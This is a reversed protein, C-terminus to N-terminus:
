VSGYLESHATNCTHQKQGVGGRDIIVVTSIYCYNGPQSTIVNDNKVTASKANSKLVTNGDGDQLSAHRTTIRKAVMYGAM